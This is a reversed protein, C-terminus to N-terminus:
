MCEAGERAPPEESPLQLGQGAPEKQGLRLRPDGLPVHEASELQGESGLVELGVAKGQGWTGEPLEWRTFGLGWLGLDLGSKLCTSQGGVTPLLRARLLQLSSGWVWM